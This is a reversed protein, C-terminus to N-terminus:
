GQLTVSLEVIQPLVRTSVYGLADHPLVFVAASMLWILVVTTGIKYM